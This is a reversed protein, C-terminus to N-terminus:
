ARSGGPAARSPGPSPRAQVVGRVELRAGGAEAEGAVLADVRRQALVGEVGEDRRRRPGGPHDVGDDAVARRTAAGAERRDGAVRVHAHRGAEDVAERHAEREEAGREAVAPQQRVRVRELLGGVRTTARTPHSPSGRAIGPSSDVARAAVYKVTDDVTQVQPYDREPIAVGTREEIGMLVNLFDISDVDMQPGIPKAPDIEDESV